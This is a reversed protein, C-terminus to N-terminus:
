DGGGSAWRGPPAGYHARFARYFHSLDGFGSSFAAGAISNEGRAILGAAYEVRLRTLLDNFSTGSVERFLQTFRRRSLHALRAADEVPWPEHFRECVEQMVSQVRELSDPHASTKPLRLVTVLLQDVLSAIMVSAGPREMAQEAMIGRLLRRIRERQHDFPVPPPSAISSISQWARARGPDRKVFDDTFAVIILTTSATDELRHAMGTRVPFWSGEQLFVPNRLCDVELHCQGRLVLFLENFPHSERDMRFQHAHISEVAVVGHEPLRFRVPARLPITAPPMAISRGNGLNGSRGIFQASGGLVACTPDGLTERIMM